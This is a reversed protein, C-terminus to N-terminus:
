VLIFDIMSREYVVPNVWLHIFSITQLHWKSFCFSDMLYFTDKGGGYLFKCNKIALIHILSNSHM